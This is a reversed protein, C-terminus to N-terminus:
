YKRWSQNVVKYVKNFNFDLNNRFNYRDHFYHGNYKDYGYDFLEGVALIDGKM